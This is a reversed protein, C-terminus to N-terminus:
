QGVNYPYALYLAAGRIAREAGDDHLLARAVEVGNFFLSLRDPHRQVQLSV